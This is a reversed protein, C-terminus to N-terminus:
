AAVEIGVHGAECATSGACVGTSAFADAPQAQPLQDRLPPHSRRHPCTGPPTRRLATPCLEATDYRGEAYQPHTVRRRPLGPGGERHRRQRLRHAPGPETEPHGPAPRDRQRDRGSPGRQSRGAVPPCRPRCRPGSQPRDLLRLPSCAPCLPLRGRLPRATTWTQKSRGAERLGARSRGTTTQRLRVRAPEASDDAPGPSNSDQRPSRQPTETIQRTRGREDQHLKAFIASPDPRM